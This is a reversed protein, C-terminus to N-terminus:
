RVRKYFPLAVVEFPESKGRLDIDLATGLESHEVDVYALAVPYGLTPSPQGSTVEGVVAGDKLVPYHGRGARRGLGKLGVLKRGSTAGAGDAKLAALAEKGVFDGEKSLAVVPGLGAAFPNGERSLENGYLPMGAELRLSDRSALGAPTLEGEEAADAIAQWLAAASENAVFIEFGDEGTYGTRALLLEQTGGDFTFPVDVAAYYKLDTVLAHQEAPVLRLLISEALPGQVAILSTEASADEVVVDFGAARELLAAAVVAANGANPVVLFKETGEEPSPRRYVILDDIIGGDEQCILSYKAKGVAMASIKGVLAYDLFAAAEPGSVWVEGMHSLDFLGATKRVAHHEALESSYKLPMQWGGFDTFSAGLKKHEEYLATYNESM